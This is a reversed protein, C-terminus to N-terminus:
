SGLTRGYIAAHPGSSQSRSGRAPGTRDAQKHILILRRAAAVGCHAWVRVAIHETLDRKPQRLGTVRSKVDAVNHRDRKALRGARRGKHYGCNLSVLDVFARRRVVRV